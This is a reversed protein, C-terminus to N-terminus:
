IEFHKRFRAEINEMTSGHDYGKLHVLGHIFLFKLFNDPKRDFKKAEKKAESLCLYIEGETDSLPFSLIDTPKNINRYQLNLEKMRESDVFAVSLDYSKGLIENKMAEFLAKRQM